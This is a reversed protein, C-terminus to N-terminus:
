RRLVGLHHEVLVQAFASKSAARAAYSEILEAIRMGQDGRPLSVSVSRTRGDHRRYGRRSVVGIGFASLDYGVSPFLEDLEHAHAALLAIFYERWTPIGRDIRDRDAAEYVDEDLYMSYRVSTPVAQPAIVVERWLVDENTSSRSGHQESAKATERGRRRAPERNEPAPTEDRRLTTAARTVPQEALAESVDSRSISAATLPEVVSTVNATEGRVTELDNATEREGAEVGREEAGQEEVGQEEVGQEEVLVSEGRETEVRDSASQPDGGTLGGILSAAVVPDAVVPDAVVPDAVVPDAVVPDAVVPDAVVPEAVVPEAVLLRSGMVSAEDDLVSTLDRGTLPPQDFAGELAGSESVSDLTKRMDM